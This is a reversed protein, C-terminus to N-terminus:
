SAQRLGHCVVAQYRDRSFGYHKEACEPCLTHSISEPAKQALDAPSPVFELPGVRQRNCGCCVILLEDDAIFHDTFASGERTAFATFPM